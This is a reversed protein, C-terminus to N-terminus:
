PISPGKESVPWLTKDFDDEDFNQFVGFVHEYDQEIVKADKLDFKRPNPGMLVEMMRQGYISASCCVLMRMDKYRLHEECIEFFDNLKQSLGLNVVSLESMTKPSYLEFEHVESEKQPLYLEFEFFHQNQVDLFRTALCVAAGVVSTKTLEKCDVVFKYAARVLERRSSAFVEKLHAQPPEELAEIYGVLRPGLDLIIDQVHSISSYKVCMHLLEKKFQLEDLLPLYLLVSLVTSIDNILSEMNQTLNPIAQDDDENSPKDRLFNLADQLTEANQVVRPSFRGTKVNNGLEEIARSFDYVMRDVFLKRVNKGVSIQEMGLISNSGAPDLTKKEESIENDFVKKKKKKNDNINYRIRIFNHLAVTIDNFANRIIRLVYDIVFYLRHFFQTSTTMVESPFTKLNVFYANIENDIVLFSDVVFDAWTMRNERWEWGKEEKEEENLFEDGAKLDNDPENLSIDEEEEEETATAVSTVDTETERNEDVTRSETARREDLDNDKAERQEANEHKSTRRKEKDSDNNGPPSQDKKKDVKNKPPKKDLAHHKFETSALNCLWKEAEAARAIFDRCRYLSKEMWNQLRMNLEKKVFNFM